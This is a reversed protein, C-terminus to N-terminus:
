SDTKPNLNVELEKGCLCWFLNQLEHLTKATAITTTLEISLDNSEGYIEIGTYTIAGEKDIGILLAANERISIGYYIWGANNYREMGCAELISPTLPVGECDGLFEGVGHEIFKIVRRNEQQQSAAGALYGAHYIQPGTFVHRDKLWDNAKKVIAANEAENM